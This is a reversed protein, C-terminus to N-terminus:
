REPQGNSDKRQAKRESPPNLLRARQCLSQSQTRLEFARRAAADAMARARNARQGLVECLEFLTQIDTSALWFRREILGEVVGILQDPEFPVLLFAQAGAELARCEADPHPDTSLVVLPIRPTFSQIGAVMEAFDGLWDDFVVVHYSGLQLFQRAEAATAVTTVVYERHGFLAALLERQDPNTSVCLIHKKDSRM